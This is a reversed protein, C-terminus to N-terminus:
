LRDEIREVHREAGAEALEGALHEADAVEAIEVIERQHARQGAHLHTELEGAHLHFPFTYLRRHLVQGAARFRGGPLGGLNTLFWFSSDLSSFSQRRRRMSPM